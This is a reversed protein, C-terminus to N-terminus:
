YHSYPGFTSSLVIWQQFSIKDDSSWPWVVVNLEKGKGSNSQLGEAELEGSQLVGSLGQWPM